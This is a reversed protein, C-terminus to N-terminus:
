PRILQKFIAESRSVDIVRGEVARYIRKQRQIARLFVDRDVDKLHIVKRGEPSLGFFETFHSFVYNNTVISYERMKDIPMGSVKLELLEKKIGNYKYSLGSVQLFEMPNTIQWEIIKKLEAGTVHFMVFHNGFPNIEWIDRVRIPGAELNKRIGFSNQFAIDAGSYERMVDTEWNGINSESWGKRIWSNELYGIISNLEEGAEGELEEVKQEVDLSPRVLRNDTELLEGQYRVVTDREADVWIVLKGLYRGKSGAQCIVTNNVILPEFLAAHRHGGIIVDLEPVRVALLSDSKVGMHSVAIIIDVEDAIEDIIKRATEEPNLVELESVNEPLTLEKLDPTMLGIFGIKVGDVEKILYPNVLPKGDRKYVLNASIVPFEMKSLLNKLNEFGYDFEHNGPTFVDPKVINLLEVQSAGRTLTSIPSGQFDDGANVTIVSPYILSLSDIYGKLYAIGGVMKHPDDSGGPTYPL